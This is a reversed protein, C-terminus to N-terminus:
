AVVYYPITIVTLIGRPRRIQVLRAVYCVGMGVFISERCHARIGQLTCFTHRGAPPALFFIPYACIIKPSSGGSVGGRFGGELGGVRVYLTGIQEKELCVDM